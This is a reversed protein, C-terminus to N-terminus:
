QYVCSVILVWSGIVLVLWRGSMHACFDGVDFRALGSLGDAVLGTVLVTAAVPMELDEVKGRALEPIPQEVTLAEEAALATAMEVLALRDGM